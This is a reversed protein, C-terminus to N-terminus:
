ITANTDQMMETRYFYYGLACFLRDGDTQSAPPVKRELAVIAKAEDWARKEFVPNQLTTTSNQGLHTSPLLKYIM